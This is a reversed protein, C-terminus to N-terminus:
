SNSKFTDIGSKVNDALQGAKYQAEDALHGVNTKLNAVTERVQSRTKDWQHQVERTQDNVSGAIQKRTEKGSRPAFLFGVALGAALGTVLGALYTQEKQYDQFYKIRKSFM